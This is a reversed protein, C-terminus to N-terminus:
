MQQGHSSKSTPTREAFACNVLACIVAGAISRSPTSLSHGLLGSVAEGCESLDGMVLRRHCYVNRSV